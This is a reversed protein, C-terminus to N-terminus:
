PLIKTTLQGFPTNDRKNGEELARVSMARGLVSDFPGRGWAHIGAVGAAQLAGPLFPAPFRRPTAPRGISSEPRKPVTVVLRSGRSPNSKVTLEGEILRVRERIVM